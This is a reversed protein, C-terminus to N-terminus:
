KWWFQRYWIIEINIGQTRKATNKM